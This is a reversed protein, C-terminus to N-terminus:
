VCFRNSLLGLLWSIVLESHSYNATPEHQVRAGTSQDENAWIIVELAVESGFLQGHQNITLQVMLFLCWHFNLWFSSAAKWSFSKTNHLIDATIHLSWHSWWSINANQVSFQKPMVPGKQSFNVPSKGCLGTIRLIPILRFLSNILCDVLLKRCLSALTINSIFFSCGYYNSFM